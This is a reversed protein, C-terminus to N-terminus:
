ERVRKGDRWKMFPHLLLRASTAEDAAIESGPGLLSYGGVVARDGVKVPALLVENRGQDNRVMVHPILQAGAGFLVDDGIVLFSRDLIRTGPSWFVMRGIRSGWLRLWASYLLPVIRMLEELMPLRGFIMQLNLLTWWKFFDASGLALTTSRIPFLRVIAGGLAAPALYLLALAAAIRGGAGAWPVALVAVLAAAHFLPIYNILMVLLRQRVTLDHAALSPRSRSAERRLCAARPEEADTKM